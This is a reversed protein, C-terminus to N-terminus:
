GQRNRWGQKRKAKRLRRKREKVRRNSASERRQQEKKRFRATLNYICEMTKFWEVSMPHLTNTTRRLDVIELVLPDNSLSEYQSPVYGWENPQVDDNMGPPMTPLFLTIKEFPNPSVDICVEGNWYVCHHNAKIAIGSHVTLAWGNQILGNHREACRRANDYCMGRRSNEILTSDIKAFQPTYKPSLRRAFTILPQSITRPTAFSDAQAAERFVDAPIAAFDSETMPYGVGISLAASPPKQDDLIM